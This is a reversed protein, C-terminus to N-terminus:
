DTICAITDSDGGLTDAIITKTEIKNRGTRALYVALAASPAGKIGEPHNHTVEVSKKAESMAEEISNAHWEIPNVRMASGIIDGAIAEIILKDEPM